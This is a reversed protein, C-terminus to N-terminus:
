NTQFHEFTSQVSSIRLNKIIEESLFNIKNEIETIKEEKGESLLKSVEKALAVLMRHQENESNFRPLPLQKILEMSVGWKSKTSKHTIISKIYSSNLLGCLFYAEDESDLPIFGITNDPILVKKGLYDDKVSSAVAFDPLYGIASWVVKYPKFTYNGLGFVTYFPKNKFWRSTRKLLDNKFRLLYKYTFPYKTKLEKENNEGYERQPLIVYDYGTIRWRKVYKPKLLPYILDPEMEATVQKVRRRGSVSNRIQLLGKATKGLIEVQFVGDLDDVIGHRADYPNETAIVSPKVGKPVIVWPAAKDEFSPDSYAECEIKETLKLVKSLNLDNSIEASTKGEKMKWIIYPVPYETEDGKELIILSTESQMPSFPKLEVLDHVKHVKLPVKGTVKDICFKRFEKGAVSKYLTQKLFFACKGGPKLYKDLAVYTFVISIDDHAYGMAAKMGKHSFLKYVKLYLVSLKKKYERALFEWKIWPPNGVVFDFSQLYKLPAFFSKMRTIITNYEHTDLKTLHECFAFFAELDETTANPFQQAIISENVHKRECKLLRVTKNLNDGEVFHKPLKLLGSSTSIKYTTDDPTIDETTPTLISDTLFIPITIPHKFKRLAPLLPSLAILYTTRATLVAIPNIDFGIVNNLIKRLLEEDSLKGRNARIIRTIAEALFGGRGCGPDLIKSEVDGEYGVENLALEVLWDPTFVEGLDHRIQSPVIKEYLGKLVDRATLGALLLFNFESVKELIPKIAGEISEDWVDLFWFFNHLDEVFNGLNFNERFFDGRFMYELEKKINESSLIKKSISPLQWCVCLIEACILTIVQAYYTFLTFLFIPVEAKKEGIIEDAVEAFDKKIKEGSLVSGYLFKFMDHWQEFHSIVKANKRQLEERLRKYFTNILQKTHSKNLSFTRSLLKTSPNKSIFELLWELWKRLSVENFDETTIKWKREGGSWEIFILKRGDFIIGKFLARMNEPIPELYKKRYEEIINQAKEDSTLLGVAKYDIILGGYIADPNGELKIPGLEDVDHVGYNTLNINYRTEFFTHLWQEVRVRFTMEPLGNSNEAIKQLKEFLFTVDSDKLVSRMKLYIREGGAQAM